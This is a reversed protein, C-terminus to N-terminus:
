SKSNGRAGSLVGPPPPLQHLAKGTESAARLLRALEQLGEGKLVFVQNNSGIVNGDGTIRIAAQDALSLVAAPSLQRLRGTLRRTASESLKGSLADLLEKVSITM